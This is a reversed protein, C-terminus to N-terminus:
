AEGLKKQLSTSSTTCQLAMRRAAPTLSFRPAPIAVRSRAGTM